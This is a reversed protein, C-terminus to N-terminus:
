KLIISEQAFGAEQLFAKARKKHAGQLEIRNEKVTGGCALKAKLKKALADLDVEHPNIGSIITYEKGFKRKEVSIVVRQSEKAISECVCLDPPLGCTTCVSM